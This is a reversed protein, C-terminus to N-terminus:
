GSRGKISATFELLLRLKGDASATYNSDLISFVQSTSEVVPDSSSLLLGIRIGLIQSQDAWDGGKVWLDVQGDGNSDKGYLAQFSEVNRVFGQHNVQTILEALTPGYRCTHTLDKRDNLDFRSERIYFASQGFEDQIPNRNDFCNTNSWARIALRDSRSTVQDGTEPTLGQPGFNENWPQPSFGTQRILRGLTSIAYRGNEQVEAQNEQLRFSSRAASVIQVLGMILFAAILVAVLLEVLTLGGQATRLTPRSRTNMFLDFNM